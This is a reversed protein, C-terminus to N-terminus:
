SSPEPTQEVFIVEPYGLDRLLRSLYNEANQRALNLIGDELAAEEIAREAARRATTELNLDGQTLVGTDRDYVYSKENDLTAIFVEPEPLQVHLVGGVVWMDEPGLRNLDIGAIVQGHAVFLLRDGFLFGFAGQGVEATIVKEVSYQITELRALTRVDHIITIPDPLVTPSPNLVGAVQTGLSGSVNQVQQVATQTSSRVAWVVGYGTAALIILIGGILVWARNNSM